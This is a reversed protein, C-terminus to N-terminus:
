ELFFGSKRAKAGKHQKCSLRLRHWLKSDDFKRCEVEAKSIVYGNIGELERGIGDL